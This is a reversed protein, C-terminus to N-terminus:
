FYLLSELTRHIYNYNTKSFVLVFHAYTTRLKFIEVSFIKVLFLLQLNTIKNEINYGSLSPLYAIFIISDLKDLDLM